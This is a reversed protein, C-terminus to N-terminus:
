MTQIFNKLDLKTKETLDYDFIKDLLIWDFDEGENLKMQSKKLDNEIFFVYRYTQLENNFYDRLLKVKDESIEINLEEQIERIFTEKPTEKEENLGGFFAWQEPNVKTKSDRKHLLISKTKPNYLFGGAYFKEKKINRNEVVNKAKINRFM